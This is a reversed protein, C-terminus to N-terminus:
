PFINQSPSLFRNRRAQKKKTAYELESFSAQRTMEGIRQREELMKEDQWWWCKL